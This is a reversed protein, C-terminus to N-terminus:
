LGTPSFRTIERMRLWPRQVLWDLQLLWDDLMYEVGGEGVFM